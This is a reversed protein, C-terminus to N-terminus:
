GPLPQRVRRRAHAWIAHDLETATKDFHAAATEVLREATKADVRRDVAARVFRIIWTDAKVGPAGLLMTFYKWTVPGLGRVSTWARAQDTDSPM